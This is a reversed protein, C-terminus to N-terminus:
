KMFIIVEQYGREIFLIGGIELSGFGFIGNLEIKGL